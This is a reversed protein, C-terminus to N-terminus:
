VLEKTAYGTVLLIVLGLFLSAWYSLEVNYPFLYKDMLGWVGRWFSIVAFAIIVSFIIQHRTKLKSFKALM